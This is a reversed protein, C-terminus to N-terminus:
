TYLQIYLSNNYIAISTKVIKKWSAKHSHHNYPTHKHCGAAEAKTAGVEKPGMYLKWNCIGPPVTCLGSFVFQAVSFWAWAFVFSYVNLGVNMHKDVFQIVM